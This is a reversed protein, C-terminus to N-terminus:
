PLSVGTVALLKERLAQDFERCSKAVDASAIIRLIQWSYLGLKKGTVGLVQRKPFGYIEGVAQLPCQNHNNRLWGYRTINWGQNKLNALDSLFRDM